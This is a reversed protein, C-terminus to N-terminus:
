VVRKAREDLSVPLRRGHVPEERPQRRQQALAVRPLRQEDRGAVLERQLPRELLELLRVLRDAIEGGSLHAAAETVDRRAASRM